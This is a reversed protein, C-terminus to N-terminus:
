DEKKYMAIQEFLEAIEDEMKEFLGKKTENKKAKFRHMKGQKDVIIYLPIANMKRESVLDNWMSDNALLHMGSLAHTAIYRRWKEEYAPKDMSLYCIQIDKHKQLHRKVMKQQVICPSCWTAWMEILTVKGNFAAPLSDITNIAQNDLIVVQRSSSDNINYGDITITKQFNHYDAFLTVTDFPASFFSVSDNGIFLKAEYASVFPLLFEFAGDPATSTSFITDHQASKLFVQQNCYNAIKGRAGSQAVLTCSWCLSIAFFLRCILFTISKKFPSLIM